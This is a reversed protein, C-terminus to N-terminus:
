LVVHPGTGLVVGVMVTHTDSHTATHSIDVGAAALRCGQSSLHEAIHAAPPVCSISAKTGVGAGLVVVCMGLLVVHACKGPVVAGGLVVVNIGPSPSHAAM